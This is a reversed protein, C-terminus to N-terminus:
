AGWIDALYNVFNLGLIKEIRRTPHGRAALRDALVQFQRPGTLDSAYPPIAPDEGPAAIGAKIREAVMKAWPANQIRPDPHLPAVGYDTGIGVHDEGCVKLAHEIHAVLDHSDAPRGKQRALFMVWYIGVYGGREAVARLEEDTKSRPNPAVAACGTHTICIPQKSFRVADMCIRQGSHSLDVPIRRNNLREVVERGFDTLGPNGPALSGGGVRNRSNYTLQIIRLGLDAFIDVRDAKDGLMTTNQVGEIVGIKNQAKAQRIDRTTWIKMLTDPNNRIANDCRGISEVCSEFNETDLSINFATLGSALGAKIAGPSFTLRPDRELEPPRPGYSDDLDGLSNVIMMRRIDVRGQGRRRAPQALAAGSGAIGSGALASVMTGAAAGMFARRGLGAQEESTRDSDM